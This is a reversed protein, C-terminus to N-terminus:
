KAGQKAEQGAQQPKFEWHWPEPEYEVFGFEGARAKLWHWFWSEKWPDVQAMSAGLEKETSAAPQEPDPQLLLAFDVAIGGQHNSFGPAAVRVGIYERLLEAAAAGHEGGAEGNPENAALARRKEQTAEYYKQFNRDWIGFQRSAPRYANNIALERVRRARSRRLAAAADNAAAARNIALDRALDAHAASLLRGLQLAADRRMKIDTGAITALQAAPLDYIRERGSRLGRAIHLNYVHQKFAYSERSLGAQSLKEAALAEVAAKEEPTRPAAASQSAAAKQVRPVVIGAQAVDQASPAVRTKPAVLTAARPRPPNVTQTNSSLFPKGQLFVVASLLTCCSGISLM